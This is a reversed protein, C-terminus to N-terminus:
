AVHPSVDRLHGRVVFLTSAPSHQYLCGIFDVTEPVDDSAVREL